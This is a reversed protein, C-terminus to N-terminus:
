SAASESAAFQDPEVYVLQLTVVPKEGDPRVGLMLVNVAGDHETVGGVGFLRSGQMAPPLSDPGDIPQFVPLSAGERLADSLRAVLALLGDRFASYNIAGRFADADLTVDIRVLGGDEMKLKTLTLARGEELERFIRKATTRGAELIGQHLLNAAITALQDSGIEKSERMVSGRQLFPM